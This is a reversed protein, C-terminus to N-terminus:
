MALPFVICVSELKFPSCLCPNSARISSPQSMSLRGILQGDLIRLLINSTSVGIRKLVRSTPHPTSITRQTRLGRKHISCTPHACSFLQLATRLTIDAIPPVPFPCDIYCMCASYPVMCPRPLYGYWSGAQGHSVSLEAMSLGPLIWFIVLSALWWVCIRWPDSTAM